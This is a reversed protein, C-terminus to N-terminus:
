FCRQRKLLAEISRRMCADLGRYDGFVFAHVCALIVSGARVVHMPYTICYILTSYVVLQMLSRGGSRLARRLRKCTEATDDIM